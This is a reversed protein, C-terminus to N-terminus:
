SAAFSCHLPESVTGAASPSGAVKVPEPDPSNGSRALRSLCYRAVKPQGAGRMGRLPRVGGLASDYDKKAQSEGGAAVVMVVGVLWLLAFGGLGIWFQNQKLFDKDIKGAM